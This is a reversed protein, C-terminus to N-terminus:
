YFLKNYERLEWEAKDKDPHIENIKKLYEESDDLSTWNIIKSGKQILRDLPFHPPTTEIIGACWLYKLYLNVVKQAVGFRLQGGQLIDDCNNSQHIIMQIRSIYDSESKINQLNNAISNIAIFLTDKFEKKRAESAVDRYINARSFSASVTLIFFQWRLFKEKEVNIDLKNM